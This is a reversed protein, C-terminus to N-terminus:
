ADGVRQAGVEGQVGQLHRDPAAGLGELSEDVVGVAADLGPELPAPLVTTRLPAYFTRWPRAQRGGTSPRAPGATSHPPSRPSTAPATSPSTPAKPSTSACCATPTRTPPGNGRATRTASTSPWGPTSAYSSM